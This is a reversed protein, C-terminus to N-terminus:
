EMNKKAKLKSKMCNYKLYKTSNAFLTSWSWVAGEPATQDQDTKNAYAM